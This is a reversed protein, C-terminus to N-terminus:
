SCLPVAQQARHGTGELRDDFGSSKTSMARLQGRGEGEETEGGKGWAILAPPCKSTKIQALVQVLVLYSCLATM